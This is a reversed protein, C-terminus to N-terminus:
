VFPAEKGDDFYKGTPGGEPLLLVKLLNSAGEAPTLTGSYVSIDTKVYGPNACNIRLGPQRRAIMRSYANMAIQGMRYASFHMPWGRAELAGAEFDKLYTALMEDLDKETLKEIDDLERKLEENKLQEPESTASSIAADEIYEVAGLAANNVLIDIKGFHGKLFDALQDIGPSDTIDLQHFIVNHLGAQKLEQVAASGRKENRATLVVTIGKSALQRCVELGIGKNGGTVVAIRIFIHEDHIGCQKWI